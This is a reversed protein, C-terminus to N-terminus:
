SLEDFIEMAIEIANERCGAFIVEIGYKDSYENLCKVIYASSIRVKSLQSRPIGSNKPFELLNAVSFECIIYKHKFHSMRLMEADFAKKKKGINLAVEATSAKREVCLIDEFGVLSYDGTKLGSIRVPIDHFSFDWPAQERTDQVIEYQGM